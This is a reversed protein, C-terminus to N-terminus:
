PGRRELTPGERGLGSVMATVAKIMQGKLRLEIEDILEGLKRQQLGMAKRLPDSLVVVLLCFCTVAAGVLLTAWIVDSTSPEPPFMGYWASGLGRGLFFHSAAVEHARERALRDGIGLLGLSRDKFLLWGALVTGASGALDSVLARGSSHHEMARHVEEAAVLMLQRLEAAGFQGSLASSARLAADLGNKRGYQIEWESAWALLETGILRDIERQYRTRIGSPVRSLLPTANGWGLTDLSEVIKRLSLYPVAWLANLPYCLLDTFLSRRQLRISESLSYHRQVFSVLRVRCSRCYDDIAENLAMAVVTARDDGM